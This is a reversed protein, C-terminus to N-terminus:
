ESIASMGDVYNFTTILVKGPNSYDIRMALYDHAKEQCVTLPAEKGFVKSLLGLLAEVAKPNVHLINLDDVHGTQHLTYHEDDQECRM